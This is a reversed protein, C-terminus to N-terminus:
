SRQIIFTIYHNTSETILRIQHGLLEDRSLYCRPSVWSMLVWRSEKYESIIFEEEQLDDTSFLGGDTEGLFEMADIGRALDESEFHKFQDMKVLEILLIMQHYGM